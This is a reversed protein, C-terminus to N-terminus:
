APEGAGVSRRTSAGQKLVGYVCRALSRAIATKAVNPEKRRRLRRYRWAFPNRFQIAVNAATILAWRLWASGQRTIGGHVSVEGSEYLSPVLGRYNVLAPASRFPEIRGIESWIVPALIVGIGPITRLLQLEPFQPDVAWLYNESIELEQSFVEHLRLIQEVSERLPPSLRQQALWARGRVGCPDAGPPRLGHMELLGQLQNRARARLVAWWCRQRARLRLEGIEPPPFWVEPLPNLHAVALKRALRKADLRDYKQKRLTRDRGHAGM